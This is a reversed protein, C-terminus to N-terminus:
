GVRVGNCRLEAAGPRDDALAAEIASEQRLTCPIWVAPPEDFAEITTGWLGRLGPTRAADFRLNLDICPESGDPEGVNRRLDIEYGGDLMPEMVVIGCDSEGWELGGVPKRLWREYGDLAAALTPREFDFGAAALADAFGLALSRLDPVAEAEYRMPRGYSRMRVGVAGHTAARVGRTHNTHLGTWFGGLYAIAAALPM